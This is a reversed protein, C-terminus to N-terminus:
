KGQSLLTPDNEIQLYLRLVFDVVFEEVNGKEHTPHETPKFESMHQQYKEISDYVLNGVLHWFIIGTKTKSNELYVRYEQPLKYRLIKKVDLGNM